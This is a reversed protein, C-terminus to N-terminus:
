KIEAVVKRFRCYKIIGPARHVQRPDLDNHHAQKLSIGKSFKEVIRAQDVSILKFLVRKV